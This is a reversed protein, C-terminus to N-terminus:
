GYLWRRDARYKRDLESGPLAEYVGIPRANSPTAGPCLPVVLVVSGSVEALLLWDAPPHAEYYIREGAWVDSLDDVSRGGHSFLHALQQDIEFPDFPDLLEYDFLRRRPPV